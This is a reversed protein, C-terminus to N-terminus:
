QWSAWACTDLAAALRGSVPKRWAKAPIVAANASADCWDAFGNLDVQKSKSSCRSVCRCSKGPRSGAAPTPTLGQEVARGPLDYPSRYACGHDPAAHHIGNREHRRGLFAGVRCVVGLRSPGGRLPEVLRRVIMVAHDFRLAMSTHSLVGTGTRGLCRGRQVESLSASRRPRTCVACRGPNADLAVRGFRDDQGM